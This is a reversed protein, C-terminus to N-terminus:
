KEVIWQLYKIWINLDFAKDRQSYYNIMSKGNINM